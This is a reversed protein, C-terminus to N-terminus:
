TTLVCEVGYPEQSKYMKLKRILTRRSIGLMHAARDQKGRAQSLANLIAQQEIEDLTQRPPSQVGVKPQVNEPLDWIKIENGQAMCAARVVANKLERVNGPWSYNELADVVSASLAL